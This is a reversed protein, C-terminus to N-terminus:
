ARKPRAFARLMAATDKSTVARLLQSFRAVFDHRPKLHKRRIADARGEFTAPLSYGLLVSHPAAKRAGRPLKTATKEKGELWALALDRAEQSGLATNEMVAAALDVVLQDIMDKRPRGRKRKKM